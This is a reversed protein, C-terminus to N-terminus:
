YISVIELIMLITEESEEDEEKEEQQMPAAFSDEQRWVNELVVSSIQSSSDDGVLIESPPQTKGVNALHEMKPEFITAQKSIHNIFTGGHCLLDNMKQTDMLFVSRTRVMITKDAFAEGKLLMNASPLIGYHEELIVTNLDSVQIRKPPPIDTPPNEADRKDRSVVSSYLNIANGRSVLNEEVYVKFCRPTNRIHQRLSKCVISEGRIEGNFSSSCNICCLEISVATTTKKKKRAM